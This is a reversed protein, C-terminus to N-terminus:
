FKRLSWQFKRLSNQFVIHEFIGSAGLVKDLVLVAKELVALDEEMVELDKSM